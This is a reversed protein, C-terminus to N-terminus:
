SAVAMKKAVIPEPLPESLDHFIVPEPFPDGNLSCLQVGGPTNAALEYEMYAQDYDRHLLLTDRQGGRDTVRVTYYHQAGDEDETLLLHIRDRRRHPYRFESPTESILVPISTM